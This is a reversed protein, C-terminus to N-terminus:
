DIHYITRVEQYTGIIDLMKERITSTEHRDPLPPHDAAFVIYRKDQPTLGLNDASAHVHESVAGYMDKEVVEIPCYCYRPWLGEIASARICGNIVKWLHRDKCLSLREYFQDLTM